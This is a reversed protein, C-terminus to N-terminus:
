TAKVSVPFLLMRRSLATGSHLNVTYPGQPIHNDSLLIMMLIIQTNPLQMLPIVTMVWLKDTCCKKVQYSENKYICSVM